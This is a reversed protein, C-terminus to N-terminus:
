TTTKQSSATHHTRAYHPLMNSHRWTRKIDRYNWAYLLNVAPFAGLLINFINFLIQQSSYEDIETRDCTSLGTSECLFYNTLEQMLRGDPWLRLRTSFTLIIYINIFLFYSTIVLIKANATVPQRSKRM